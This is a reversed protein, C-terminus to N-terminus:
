DRIAEKRARGMRPHLNRLEIGNAERIANVLAQTRLPKTLFEVAGAKMAQVTTPINASGSVFIVPM